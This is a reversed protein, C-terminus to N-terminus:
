HHHLMELLAKEIENYQYRCTSITTINTLHENKAKQWVPHILVVVNDRMSHVELIGDEGVSCVVVAHKGAKELKGVARRASLDVAEGRLPLSLLVAPYKDFWM